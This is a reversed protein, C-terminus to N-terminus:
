HAGQLTFHLEYLLEKDGRSFTKLAKPTVQAAGSAKMGGAIFGFTGLEFFAHRVPIGSIGLTVKGEGMQVTLAGADYHGRWIGPMMSLFSSLQKSASYKNQSPGKTVSWFGARESLTFHGKTDGGYLQEVLVDTFVLFSAMPIPTVAFIPNAFYADKPVLAAEVKKWSAEGFAAHVANRRSIFAAGKVIM